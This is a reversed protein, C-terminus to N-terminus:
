SFSSTVKRALHAPVEVMSHEQYLNIKGIDRGSIRSKLSISKLLDGVGIGDKRGVPLRLRVFKDSAAGRRDSPAGRRNGPRESEEIIDEVTVDGAMLGLAAGCVQWAHSPGSWVAGAAALVVPLLFCHGAALAM